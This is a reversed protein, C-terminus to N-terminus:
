AFVQWVSGEATAWANFERLNFFLIVLCALFVVPNPLVNGIKRPMTRRDVNYQKLSLHHEIATAIAKSEYHWVSKRVELMSSSLSNEIGVYSEQLSSNLKTSFSLYDSFSIDYMIRVRYTTAFGYYIGAAFVIFLALEVAICAFTVMYLLPIRRKLKKLRANQFNENEQSALKNNGIDPHKCNRMTIGLIFMFALFGLLHLILLFYDHKIAEEVKMLREDERKLAGFAVLDSSHQSLLQGTEMITVNPLDPWEELNSMLLMDRFKTIQRRFALIFEDVAEALTRQNTSFLPLEITRKCSSEQFPLACCESNYWILFYIATTFIVASACYYLQVRLREALIEMKKLRKNIKTHKEVDYSDNLDM